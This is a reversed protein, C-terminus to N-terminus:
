ERGRLDDREGVKVFTKGRQIGTGRGDATLFLFMKGKFYVDDVGDRLVVGRFRSFRTEADWAGSYGHIRCTPPVVTAL